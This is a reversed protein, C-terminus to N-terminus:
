FGRRLGVVFLDRDSFFGSATIEDGDFVHYGFFIEYPEFELLSLEPNLYLERPTLGYIFRLRTRYRDHAWRADLEGSLRVVREPDFFPLPESSSLEHGSAAVNV